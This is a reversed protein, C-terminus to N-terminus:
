RTCSLSDRPSLLRAAFRAVVHACRLPHRLSLLGCSLPDRPSLM